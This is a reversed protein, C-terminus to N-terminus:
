IPGNVSTQCEATVRLRGLASLARELGRKLSSLSARDLYSSSLSIPATTMVPLSFAKAPSYHM